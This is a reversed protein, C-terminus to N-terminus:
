VVRGLCHQGGLFYGGLLHGVLYKSLVSHSSVYIAERAPTGPLGDVSVVAISYSFCNLPGVPRDLFFPYRLFDTLVLSSRRLFALGLYLCTPFLFM